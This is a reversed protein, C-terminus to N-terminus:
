DKSRYWGIYVGNQFVYRRGFLCLCIIGDKMKKIM